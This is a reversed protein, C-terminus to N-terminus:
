YNERINSRGCIGHYYVFIWKTRYKSRFKPFAPYSVKEMIEAESLLIKKNQETILEEKIAWKTQNSIDISLYVTGMGGHGVSKIIRYKQTFIENETLM